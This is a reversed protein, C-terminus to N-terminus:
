ETDDLGMDRKLQDITQPTGEDALARNLATLLRDANAPSRLLHLTEVLSRFDETAIITVEEHGRRTLTVPEREDIVRDWLSALNQRAMTFTIEQMIWRQQVYISYMHLTRNDIQVTDNIIPPMRLTHWCNVRECAM